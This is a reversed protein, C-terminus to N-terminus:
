CGLVPPWAFNVASSFSRLMRKGTREVFVKGWGIELNVGVEMDLHNKFGSCNGCLLLRDRQRIHCWIRLSRVIGRTYNIVENRLLSPQNSFLRL